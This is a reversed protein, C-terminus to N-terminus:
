SDDLIEIQYIKPDNWMECTRQITWLYTGDWAIAWPDKAPLYIEGALKGKKTWKCLGKECGGTTWFYEGTWVLDQGVGSQFYIKDVMKGEKSLKYIKEGDRSRLYLFEEDSTLGMTGGIEKEPIDFSDVIEISSGKLKFKFIKLLSFDNVYFYEGDWALGRPNMIENNGFKQYNGTQPDVRIFDLSSGIEGDGLSFRWLYDNAYVLAWGFYLDKGIKKIVRRTQDEEAYIYPFKDEVDGPIYDLEFNKIDEFGLQPIELSGDGLDNGSKDITSGDYINFVPEGVNEFKNNKVVINSEMGASIVERQYHKFYNGEIMSSTKEHHIAYHGDQFINNKIQVNENYQELAIEHYGNSYLLNNEFIPRSREAYFGEANIWRIISNTIPVASDLQEIGMEGFEVIVYDFESNKTNSLSIGSWDGNIPYKAASTFWIRKQNTGKAIITGGNASIGARHFTKYDRDYKAKIITGPEITLIIGQPVEVFCKLYINGSWTQDKRIQGCKEVFDCENPCSWGCDLGEEGENYIGDNCHKPLPEEIKKEIIKDKVKIIEKKEIKELKEACGIVLIIIIM